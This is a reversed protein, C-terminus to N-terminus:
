GRWRPRPGSPVPDLAFQVQNMGPPPFNGPGGGITMLSREDFAQVQRSYGRPVLSDLTRWRDPAGGEANVFLPENEGASVVITGERGGAPSWTVYPSGIPVEGSTTRLLQWPLGGFAEPDGAIKYAVGFSVDPNNGDEWTMIWRGRPLRAVTTMGPRREYDPDAQDDVPPGWARLDITTRHALKQGHAPDGQDSYYCILRGRHLLLFPEWVPTEGNNPIPPGGTVVTSLFRWTRGGDVSAFVTMATSSFDDPITNGACLLAGAPLGAFPRPLAYLFPQWRPRAGTVADQVAGVRQWSRGDDLSTFVPFAYDQADYLNELTAHLTRPRYRRGRVDVGDDSRVVRAYKVGPLPAQPPPAFVTVPGLPATPAGSSGHRRGSSTVASAPGAGAALLPGLAAGALLTRRSLATGSAGPAREEDFTTM